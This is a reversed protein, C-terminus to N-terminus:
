VRRLERDDHAPSGKLLAAATAMGGGIFRKRTLGSPGERANQM